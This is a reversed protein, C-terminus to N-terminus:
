KFNLTQQIKNAKALESDIIKYMKDKIRKLTATDTSSYQRRLSVEVNRMSNVLQFLETYKTEFDQM